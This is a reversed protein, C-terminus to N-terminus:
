AWSGGSIAMTGGAAVTTVEINRWPPHSCRAPLMSYRHIKPSLMSSRM